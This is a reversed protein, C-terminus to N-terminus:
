VKLKHADGIVIPYFNTNSFLDISNKLESFSMFCENLEIAMEIILVTFKQLAFKLKNSDLKLKIKFNTVIQQCM